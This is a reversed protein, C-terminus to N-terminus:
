PQMHHDEYGVATGVRARSWAQLPVAQSGLEYCWVLSRQARGPLALDAVVECGFITERIQFCDSSADCISPENSAMSCSFLSGRPPDGCYSLSIAVRQISLIYKSGFQHFLGSTSAAARRLVRMRRIMGRQSRRLDAQSRFNDAAAGFVRRKCQPHHDAACSRLSMAQWYPTSPSKDNLAIAENNVM